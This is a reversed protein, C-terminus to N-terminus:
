TESDHRAGGTSPEIEAAAPGCSSLRSDVGGADRTLGIRGPPGAASEADLRRFLRRDAVISWVFLGALAATVWPEALCLIGWWAEPRCRAYVSYTGDHEQIVLRSGDPAFAGESALGNSYGLSSIIGRGETDELTRWVKVPSREFYYRRLNEVFVLRGDISYPFVPEPIEVDRSPPSSVLVEGTRADLVFYAYVEAKKQKVLLTLSKGDPSFEARVLWGPPGKFEAIRRWSNWHLGLAWGSTALFMFAILTRLTYRPLLRFLRRM